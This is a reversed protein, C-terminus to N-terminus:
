PEAPIDPPTMTAGRCGSFWPLVGVGEVSRVTAVQWRERVQSGSRPQSAAGMGGIFLVLVGKWMRANQLRCRGDNARSIRWPVLPRGAHRQWQLRAPMDHGRWGALEADMDDRRVSM